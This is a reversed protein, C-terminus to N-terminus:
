FRVRKKLLHLIILVIAAVGTCPLPYGYGFVTEFNVSRYLLDMLLGIFLFEYYTYYWALITGFIFIVYWPIIPVCVLVVVMGINALVRKSKFM